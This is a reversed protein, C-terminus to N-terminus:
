TPMELRNLVKACDAYYAPEASAVLNHLLSSTCAFAWRERLLAGMESSCGRVWSSANAGLVNVQLCHLDRYSGTM